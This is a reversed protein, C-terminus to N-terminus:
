DMFPMPSEAAFFILSIRSVPLNATSSSNNNLV